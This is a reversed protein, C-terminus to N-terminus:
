YRPCPASASNFLPSMLTVLRSLQSHCRDRRDYGRRDYGWRDCDRQERPDYQDRRDRDRQDDAVLRACDSAFPHNLLAPGRARVSATVGIAAKGTGTAGGTMVAAIIGGTATDM